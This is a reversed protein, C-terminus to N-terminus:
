LLVIEDQRLKSACSACFFEQRPLHFHSVTRAGCRACVAGEPDWGLVALIRRWSFGSERLMAWLEPEPQVDPLIQALTSLETPPVPIRAITLADVIQTGNKEVFRVRSVTGPELHPALKSTIKRSSTAKGSIRGFQETFLVYRGDQERFPEKRLVIADTM